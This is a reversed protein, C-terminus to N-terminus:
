HAHLVPVLSACEAVAPGTRSVTSADVVFVLAKAAPLHEAFQGRIRPHGPVDVLRHPKGDVLVVDATNTQSSTHAPLAQGYV